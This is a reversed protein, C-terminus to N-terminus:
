KMTIKRCLFKILIILNLISFVLVALPVSVMTFYAIGLLFYLNEKM